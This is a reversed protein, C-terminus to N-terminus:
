NWISIDSSFLCNNLGKVNSKVVLFWVYSNLLLTHPFLFSVIVPWASDYSYQIGKLSNSPPPEGDNFM